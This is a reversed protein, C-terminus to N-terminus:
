FAVGMAEAIREQTKLSPVTAGRELRSITEPAVKVREALAEHTLGGAKRNSALKRGLRREVDSAM